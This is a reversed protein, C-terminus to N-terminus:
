FFIPIHNFADWLCILHSCYERTQHNGLCMLGVSNYQDASKKYWYFAQFHDQHIDYGHYYMNGVSNQGCVDGLKASDLYCSFAECFDQEVAYGYYYMNGLCNLGVPDKLDAALHYFRFAQQYDKTVGYGYFYMNGLSSFGIVNVHESLVRYYEFAKKYDQHVGQGFFYLNGLIILANDNSLAAKEFCVLAQEFDNFTNQYIKGLEFIFSDEGISAYEAIRKNKESMECYHSITNMKENISKFFHILSGIKPRADPDNSWCQKIIKQISVPCDGINNCNFTLIEDDSVVISTFVEFIASGIDFIDSEYYIEGRRKEPAKWVFKEQIRGEYQTAMWYKNIMYDTFVCGKSNESMFINSTKLNGHHFGLRHFIEISELIDIIIQSKRCLSVNEIYYGLNKHIYDYLCPLECFGFVVWAYKPSLCYGLCWNAVNKPIKQSDCVMKDCKEITSTNNLGIRKMVIKQDGDMFGVVTKYHHVKRLVIEDKIDSREIRFSM